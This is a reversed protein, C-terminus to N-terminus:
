CSDILTRSRIKYAKGLGWAYCLKAFQHNEKAKLLALQKCFLFVFPPTAMLSSVRSKLNPDPSCVQTLSTM